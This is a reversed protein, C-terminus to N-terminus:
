FFNQKNQLFIQWATSNHLHSRYNKRLNNDLWVLVEHPLKLRPPRMTLASSDPITRTRGQPAVAIGFWRDLVFFFARQDRSGMAHNEPAARCFHISNYPVFLTRWTRISINQNQLSCLILKCNLTPFGFGVSANNSTVIWLVLLSPAERLFHWHSTLDQKLSKM